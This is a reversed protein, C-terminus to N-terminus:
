LLVPNDAADMLMKYSVQSWGSVTHIDEPLNSASNYGTFGIVTCGAARGALVGARSDEFVICHEATVGLQEITYLYSAPNPKHEVVDDGSVIVQFYNKIGLIHLKNNVSQRLGSSTIACPVGEQRLGKLLHILDVDASVQQRQLDEYVYQIADRAFQHRNIQIQHHREVADLFTQLSAGRHHENHPDPVTDIDIGLRQLLASKARHASAISDILVGDMDFIVAEIM